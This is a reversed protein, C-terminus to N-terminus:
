LSHSDIVGQYFLYTLYNEFMENLIYNGVIVKQRNILYCSESPTQHEVQPIIRLEPQIRYPWTVSDSMYSYCNHIQLLVVVNM